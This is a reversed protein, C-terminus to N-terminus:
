KIDSLSLFPQHYYTAYAQQVLSLVKKDTCRFRFDISYFGPEPYVIFLEVIIDVNSFMDAIEGLKNWLERNMETFCRNHEKPVERDDYKASTYLM